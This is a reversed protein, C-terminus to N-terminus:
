LSGDFDIHEQKEAVSLKPGAARKAHQLLQEIGLPWIRVTGDRGGTGLFRGDESVALSVIEDYLSGPLEVRTAFPDPAHLDCIRRDSILWRGTSDFCFVSGPLERWPKEPDATQLDRIMFIPGFGSAAVWRGDASIRATGIPGDISGESVRGDITLKPSFMNQKDLAWIRILGNLGETMMLSGDATFDVATIQDDHASLKQTEALRSGIELRHVMGTETGVVLWKSGPDTTLCYITGFQKVRTVSETISEANLDWVCIEGDVDFAALHGSDATFMVHQIQSNHSQLLRSSTQPTLDETPSTLQWLRLENGNAEATVTWNGDGSIALLRRTSDRAIVVSSASPNVSRLDWLRVTDDAGETVAFNGASDLQLKRIEARLELQLFPGDTPVYRDPIADHGRLVICDIDGSDMSQEDILRPVRGDLISWRPSDKNSVAVAWDDASRVDALPDSTHLGHMRIAGDTWECILWRSDDTFAIRSVNLGYCPIEIADTVPQKLNWIQLSKEQACALWKGDVSFEQLESRYDLDV